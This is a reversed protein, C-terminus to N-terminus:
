AFRFRPKRGQDRITQEEEHLLAMKKVAALRLWLRDSQDKSRNALKMIRELMAEQEPTPDPDTDEEYRWSWDQLAETRGESHKLLKELREQEKWIKVDLFYWDGRRGHEM